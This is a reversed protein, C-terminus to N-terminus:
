KWNLNGMQSDLKKNLLRNAGLLVQAIPPNLDLSIGDCQRMESADLFQSQDPGRGCKTEDSELFNSSKGNKKLLSLDLAQMNSIIVDKYFLSDLSVAKV